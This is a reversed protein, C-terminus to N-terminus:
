RRTEAQKKMINLIVMYSYLALHYTNIKRSSIACYIIVLDDKKKDKGRRCTSKSFSKEKIDYHNHHEFYIRIVTKCCSIINVSFNEEWLQKTKRCHNKFCRSYFCNLKHALKILHVNLHSANHHRVFLCISSASCSGKKSTFIHVISKTKLYYSLAYNEHAGCTAYFRGTNSIESTSSSMFKKCVRGIIVKYSLHYLM